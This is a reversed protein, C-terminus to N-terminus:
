LSNRSVSSGMDQLHFTKGVGCCIRPTETFRSMAPKRSIWKVTRWRKRPSFVSRWWFGLFLCFMSTGNENFVYFCVTRISKKKNRIKYFQESGVNVDRRQSFDTIFSQFNGCTFYEQHTTSSDKRLDSSGSIVVNNQVTSSGRTESTFCEHQRSSADTKTERSDHQEKEENQKIEETNPNVLTGPIFVDPCLTETKTIFKFMLLFMIVRVTLSNVFHDKQAIFQRLIMDERGSCWPNGCGVLSVYRLVVITIIFDAAALRRTVNADLLFFDFWRSPFSCRRNKEEKMLERLTEDDSTTNGIVQTVEEKVVRRRRILFM